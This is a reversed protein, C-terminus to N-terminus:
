VQIGGPLLQLQSWVTPEEDGLVGFGLVIRGLAAHFVNFEMAALGLLAPPDALVQALASLPRPDIILLDAGVSLPDPVHLLAAALAAEPRPGTVTVRPPGLM